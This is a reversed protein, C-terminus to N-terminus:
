SEGVQNSVNRSLIQGVRRAHIKISIALGLLIWLLYSVLSGPLVWAATQNGLALSWLWLYGAAFTARQDAASYLMAWRLTRGFVVIMLIFTGLAIAGGDTAVQLYQNGATAIYNVSFGGLEQTAKEVIGYDLAVFRFGMFGVGTLPNDLFVQLATSATLWRQIASGMAKEELLRSRIGGFNLWVGIGLAVCVTMQVLIQRIVYKMSYGRWLLIVLGVILALLVGRTGTLIMPIGLAVTELLKQRVLANFVFYLLMFGVQDGIPGFYRIIEQQTQIIEGFRIGILFLCVSLYVSGAIFWGGLDLFRQVHSVQTGGNISLAILPIVAIQTGLRLLAIIEALFIKMGFRIGAITTAVLLTGMFAAIAGWIHDGYLPRRHVIISSVTKVAAVFFVIDFMQIDVNGVSLVPGLVSSLVMLGPVVWIFSCWTPLFLTIIGPLVIKILIDMWTM